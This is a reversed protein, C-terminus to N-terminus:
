QQEFRGEEEQLSVSRRDIIPLKIIFMNGDKQSRIDLSGEHNEIINHSIPVNLEAGLNDIELLHKLLNEKEDGTFEDGGFKILIEVLPLGRMLSRASITIDTGDKIREVISLVLYYFAKILLKRDANIFVARNGIQSLIKFEKSINRSSYEIADKLINKIDEKNFNYEPKSSFIVLKDILSDLEHISKIVTSAFFNQLTEDDGYKESILQTYTQISTLPTRVEHAIKAMLNNIAELKETKRKQEELKKSSSLDSFVIGAGVPSKNEDMLRYSNVGLPTKEPHIEVESRKYSTGVTMTEFLIDGLPSPLSRLDSGIMESTNLNLIESAQQNFITIKESKNIAIMGSNMSALMNNTFEKQYWMHHYLDIDKVAAALYNSFMYIIELEERYFPEETIKNGINFIGILKGKHIMPFSFACQLLDMESKINVSTTDAPNAPLQIIRRTKSLWSVLASDKKLKLNEALFPDLGYYAEAHFGEKDRLMVSMRNVRAIGMVSDMFHNFLKRMDFSVTLMKAFNLLLKEQLYKESPFESIYRSTPYHRGPSGEIDPDNFIPIHSPTGGDKTKTLLDLEHKYRQKEIARETIVPLESQLSHIDICHYVSKPFNELTFKDPKDPTILIVTDNDLKSLLDEVKSLRHSVTDIIILGLPINTHLDELEEVTRVPYVTYKKLTSKVEPIIVDDRNSLLALLEM